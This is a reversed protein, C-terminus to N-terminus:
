NAEYDLNPGLWRETLSVSWGKRAAYSEIQDKGLKGVNFYDSEAHSYYFGSVSSPPWMAFNETLQTGIQNTSDLWSFLTAKESHEPCAPYGPAPRIGRYKEKILADNDLEEDAVYGWYEKRVLKHLHEAFAEALRDALSQVLIASFDDGKARYDQSMEEAGFISV